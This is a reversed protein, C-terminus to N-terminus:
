ETWGTDAATIEPRPYSSPVILHIILTAAFAIGVATIIRLYDNTSVKKSFIPPLWFLYITIYLVVTWPIFPLLADLSIELSRDLSRQFTYFSVARYGVALIAIIGVFLLWKKAM